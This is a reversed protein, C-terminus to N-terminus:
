SAVFFRYIARYSIGTTQGDTCTGAPALGGHTNLRQIYTVHGFVGDGRNGSAHLLLQAIAGDVRSSAVATATVMSGDSTSEWTPTRFHIATQARVPNTTAGVLNAAPELFVWAGATCQYVQVGTAAFTATLTNGAPPMIEVPVSAASVPAVRATSDPGVAWASTAAGAIVTVALTGIITAKRLLM